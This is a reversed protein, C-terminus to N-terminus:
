LWTGPRARKIADAVDQIITACRLVFADDADVLIDVESVDGEFFFGEDPLKVRFPLRNSKSVLADYSRGQGHKLANVAKRFDSFEESLADEGANKLVEDAAAFGDAAGLVDQLRAEFASFVGIAIMAKGLRIAQLNKVHLTAGSTQLADLTRELWDNLAGLTARAVRESLETFQHM